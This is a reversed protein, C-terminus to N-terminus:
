AKLSSLPALGLAIPALLGPSLFIDHSTMMVTFTALPLAAYLLGRSRVPLITLGIFALPIFWGLVGLALAAFLFSNHPQLAHAKAFGMGLIPAQQYALWAREMLLGRASISNVDGEKETRKGIEEIRVAAMAQAQSKATEQSKSTQQSKTKELSKTVASTPSSQTALRSQVSSSIAKRANTLASVSNELGGFAARTAVAFRQNVNLAIAIWAILLCAVAVHPAWNFHAFSRYHRITILAFIAAAALLASKSLTVFLGAAVLLLFYGRWRLPVIWWSAAAGVILGAATVNPGQFFNAGRGATTTLGLRFMVDALCIVAGIATAAASLRLLAKSGSALVSLCVFFITAVILNKAISDLPHALTAGVCFACVVMAPLVARRVEPQTVFVAVTLGAAYTWAGYYIYPWAPLDLALPSFFQFAGTQYLIILAASAATAAKKLPTM